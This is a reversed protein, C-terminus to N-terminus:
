GFVLSTVEVWATTRASKQLNTVGSSSSGGVRIGTLAYMGIRAVADEAPEESLAKLDSAIQEAVIVYEQSEILAEFGFSDVIFGKTMTETMRTKAGEYASRQRDVWTSLNLLRTASTTNSM